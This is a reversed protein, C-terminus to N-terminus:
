NSRPLWRARHYKADEVDRAILGYNFLKSLRSAVSQQEAQFHAAVESTVLGEPHANILALLDAERIM